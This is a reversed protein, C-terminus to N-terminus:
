TQPPVRRPIENWTKVWVRVKVGNKPQPDHALGFPKGEGDVYDDVDKVVLWFDWDTPTHAFRSDAAVTKAYDKIQDLEDKGGNVGPAKLEVVLHRNRDHDMDAAAVQSDGIHPDDLTTLALDVRGSLGDLRRVPDMASSPDRGLRQLYQRLVNTLSRDSVMMNFQEGFIWLERELM